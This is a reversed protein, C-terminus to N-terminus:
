ERASFKFKLSTTLALGFVENSRYNIELTEPVQGSAFGARIKSYLAQRTPPDYEIGLRTLETKAARYLENIYGNFTHNRVDHHRTRLEDEHVIPETLTGDFFVQRHGLRALRDIFDRDEAGWGQFTEDYGGIADFDGHDVIITGWLEDSIPDATLFVGPELREFIVECFNRAVRVDVDVFFLWPATTSEAGRNRAAAASFLPQNKVRVIKACPFASAVWDGSSDPCDYDVVVVEHLPLAMLLPLTQKLHALRDKCTVIASVKPRATENKLETNSITSV